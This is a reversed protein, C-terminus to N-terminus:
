SPRTWSCTRRFAPRTRTLAPSPSPSPSPQSWAVSAWPQPSPATSIRAASVESDHAIVGSMTVVMV